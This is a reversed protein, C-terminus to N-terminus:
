ECGANTIYNACEQKTFVQERTLAGAGSAISRSHEAPAICRTLGLLGSKSACYTPNDKWGVITRIVVSRSNTTTGAANVLINIPSCLVEAGAIFAKIIDTDCIDLHAANVEVGKTVLITRVRNIGDEEISPPTGLAIKGLWLTRDWPLM